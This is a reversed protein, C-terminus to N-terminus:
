DWSGPEANGISKVSLRNLGTLAIVGLNLLAHKGIAQWAQPLFNAAYSGFAQAYLSLMVEYSLWLLVNM